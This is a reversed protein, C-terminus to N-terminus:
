YQRSGYFDGTPLGTCPDCPAEPEPEEISVPKPPEVYAYKGQGFIMDYTAQERMQQRREIQAQKEEPRQASVQYRLFRSIADPIDKKGHTSTFQKIVEEQSTRMNNLFFLRNSKYLPVLGHIRTQKANLEGQGLSIWEISPLSIGRHEAEAYIDTQLWRAGVSEEVAMGKTEPYEAPLGVITSPMEEPKFRGCIIDKIWLADNYWAGVAGVTFDRGKKDSYALDFIIWTDAEVPMRTWEVFCKRLGEATFDSESALVPNNLYQSSHSKQDMLLDSHMAEFPWIDTDLFDCMDETADLTPPFFKNKLEGEGDPGTGKMWWSPYCLYKIKGPVEIFGYVAEDGIGLKRMMRGYTDDNDYRTGITDRFGWWPLLKHTFNFRSYIKNFAEATVNLSNKDTHIDDNKLVECRWGSQNSGISIAYVSPDKIHRRTSNFWPNKRAPTTWYDMAGQDSEKCCHEPFLRHLKTPKAMENWIPVMNADVGGDWGPVIFYSKILGVISDALGGDGTQIAITTLPFCIIWNVADLADITTKWAFRPMLLLRERIDSQLHIPKSPDKQIFFECMMRHMPDRLPVDCLETSMLWLDRQYIGRLVKLAESPLEQGEDLHKLLKLREEANWVEDSKPHFTTFSIM